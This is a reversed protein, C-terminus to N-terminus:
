KNKCESSMIVESEMVNLKVPISLVDRVSYKKKMIRESLKDTFTAEYVTYGNPYDILKVEDLSYNIIKTEMEKQKKFKELSFDPKGMEVFLENKEKLAKKFREIAQKRQQENLEKGLNGM